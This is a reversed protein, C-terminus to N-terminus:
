VINEGEEESGGKGEARRSGVVGLRTIFPM